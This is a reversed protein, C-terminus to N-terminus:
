DSSNIHKLLLNELEKNNNVRSIELPCGDKRKTRRCLMPNAGAELLLKVIPYFNDQVALTLATQGNYPCRGPTTKECVFNYGFKSRYNIEAGNSILLDVASPDNHLKFKRVAYMLSTPSKQWKKVVYNNVDSGNEILLRLMEINNTSIASNLASFEKSYENDGNIKIGNKILLKASDISNPQLNYSNGYRYWSLVKGTASNISAAVALPTQETKSSCNVDLGIELLRRLIGEDSGTSKSLLKCSKPHNKLEDYNSILKEVFEIDNRLIAYSIAEYKEDESLSRIYEDSVKINSFYRGFIIKNDKNAREFRSNERKIKEEKTAEVFNLNEKKVWGRQLGIYGNERLTGVYVWDKCVNGIAVIESPKLIEQKCPFDYLECVKPHPSNATIESKDKSVLIAKDYMLANSWGIPILHACSEISEKSYVNAVTFTILQFLVLYRWNKFKLMVTRGLNTKPLLVILKITIM